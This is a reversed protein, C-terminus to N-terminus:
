GDGSSSPGHRRGTQARFGARATRLAIKIESKPGRAGLPDRLLTRLIRSPSGPLTFPGILGSLQSLHKTRECWTEPALGASSAGAFLLVVSSGVAPEPCGNEKAWPATALKHPSMVQAVREAAERSTHKNSSEHGGGVLKRTKDELTKESTDRGLLEKM